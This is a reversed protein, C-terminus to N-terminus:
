LWMPAVSVDWLMEVIAGKKLGRIEGNEEISKLFARIQEDLDDPKPTIANAFFASYFAFAQEIPENKEWQIQHFQVEPFFGSSMLFNMAYFFHSNSRERRAGTLERWLEDMPTDHRAGAWSASYVWKKSALNLKEFQEPETTAPTMRAFVFDFAHMLGRARLDIDHWDAVISSIKGALEPPTEKRLREIMASSVDIAVVEAGLKAFPIAYTGPGCGVDLIRIGENLVGKELFGRLMTEDASQRKQLDSENKRYGGAVLNWINQNSFAKGQANDVLYEAWAHKWFEPTRFNMEM